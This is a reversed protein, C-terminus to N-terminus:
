EGQYCLLHHAYEQSQDESAEGNETEAFKVRGILPDPKRERISAQDNGPDGNCITQSKCLIPHVNVTLEMAFDCCVQYVVIFLTAYIIALGGSHRFNQLSHQPSSQDPEPYTCTSLEQLSPLSGEPEM